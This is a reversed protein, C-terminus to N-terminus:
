HVIGEPKVRYSGGVLYMLGSATDFNLEPQVGGLEGMRHVYLVPEFNHFGKRTLYVVKTLTGLCVHVKSGDVGLQKLNPTQDGGLFYLQKGDPTSALTVGRPFLVGTGSPAKVHLEKLQGLEALDVPVAIASEVLRVRRSPAQHFQEYLQKAASGSDPNKRTREPRKSSKLKKTM